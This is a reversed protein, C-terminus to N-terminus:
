RPSDFISRCGRPQQTSQKLEVTLLVTANPLTVGAEGEAFIYVREPLSSFPELGQGFVDRLRISDAWPWGTSKIRYYKHVPQLIKCAIANDHAPTHDSDITQKQQM